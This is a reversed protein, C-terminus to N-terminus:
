VRRDLRYSIFDERAKNYKPTGVKSEVTAWEEASLNPHPPQASNPLNHVPLSAASSVSRRFLALKGHGASIQKRVNQTSPCLGGPELLARIHTPTQFEPRRITSFAPSLPPLPYDGTAPSLRKAASLRLNV